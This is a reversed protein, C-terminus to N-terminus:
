CPTQRLFAEAAVLRWLTLFPKSAFFRPVGRIAAIWSALARPEVIGTDALAGFDMYPALLEFGGAAEMMTAIFPDAAGKDLRTRVSEPIRGALARRYLGRHLGCSELTSVPLRALAAVLPGDMWPDSRPVGTLAEVDQRSEEGDAVWRADALHAFRAEPDAVGPLENTHVEDYLRLAASLRPGAFPFFGRYIRARRLAMLRAVPRPLLPEVLWHQVRVRPSISWPVRMDLTGLVTRLPSSVLEGAYDAMNGSLTDDGGLGTLWMEAGLERSKRACGLEFATNPLSTPQALKTLLTPVHLALERPSFRVIPEGLFREIAAVHPRDDPIAEFDMSFVLPRHGLERLMALVGSSDLGGSLPLAVRSASGCSRAVASKLLEVLETLVHESGLEPPRPAPLPETRVGSEDVTFRTHARVRTVGRYMTRERTAGGAQGAVFDTLEDLEVRKDPLMAVLDRLSTSVLVDGGGLEAVFAARAFGPRSVDLADDRLTVCTAYAAEPFAQSPEPASGVAQSRLTARASGVGSIGRALTARGIAEVFGRENAVLGPRKGQGFRAVTPGFGAVIM